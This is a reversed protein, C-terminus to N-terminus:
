GWLEDDRLRELTELDFFACANNIAFFRRVPATGISSRRVCRQLWAAVSQHLAHPDSGEPLGDILAELRQNIADPQPGDPGLVEADTSMSTLKLSSPSALPVWVVFYAAGDPVGAAHFETLAQVLLDSMEDLHAAFAM